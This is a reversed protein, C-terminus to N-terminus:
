WCFGHIVEIAWCGLYHKGGRLHEVLPHVVWGSGVSGPTTAGCARCGVDGPHWGKGDCAPCRATAGAEELADALAPLVDHCFVPVRGDGNCRQGYSCGEGSCGPCVGSGTTARALRVVEDTLWERHVEIVRQQGVPLRSISSVLKDLRVTDYNVIDRYVAPDCSGSSYFGDRRFTLRGQYVHVLVMHGCINLGCARALLNTERFTPAVYSVLEELRTAAFWQERTM